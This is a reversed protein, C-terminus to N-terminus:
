LEKCIEYVNCPIAINKLNSFNTKVGDKETYYTVNNENDQKVKITVPELM